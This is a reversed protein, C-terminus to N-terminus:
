RSQAAESAASRARQPARPKRPESVAESLEAISAELDAALVDLDRIADYDGILGFNVTGDYSMIGFCVAQRRALPVM